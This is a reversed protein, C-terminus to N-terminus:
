TGFMALAAIAVRERRNREDRLFRRMTQVAPPRRCVQEGQVEFSM